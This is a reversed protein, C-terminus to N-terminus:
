KEEKKREPAYPFIEITVRGNRIHKLYVRTKSDDLLRVYLEIANVSTLTGQFPEGTFESTLRVRVGPYFTTYEEEDARKVHLHGHEVRVSATPLDALAEHFKDSTERWHKHIQKLDKM